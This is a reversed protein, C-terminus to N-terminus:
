SRQTAQSLDDAAQFVGARTLHPTRRRRDPAGRRLGAARLQDQVAEVGDVVAGGSDSPPRAGESRHHPAAPRRLPAARAHYGPLRLSRPTNGGRATAANKKPARLATENTMPATRPTTQRGGCRATAAMMAKPAPARSAASDNSSMRGAWRRPSNPGTARPPSRPPKLKASMFSPSLRLSPKRRLRAVM